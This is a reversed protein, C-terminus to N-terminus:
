IKIQVINQCEAWKRLSKMQQLSLEKNKLLAEWKAAIKINFSKKM